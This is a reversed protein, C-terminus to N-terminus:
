NRRRAKQDESIGNREAILISNKGLWLYLYFVLCGHVISVVLVSTYYGFVSFLSLFLILKSILELLAIRNLPVTNVLSYAVGAPWRSVALFFMAIAAFLYPLHEDPSNNGVWISVICHGISGYILAAVGSAVIMFYLGYKYNKILGQHEGKADMAILFPAYSGPIRWLILIIVEPIRWILYYNAVVEPEALWGLLLTDAQITLLLIGYVVYDRGMKGSARSWLNQFGPIVKIWRLQYRGRRWYLWALVRVTLLGTIQAFIIGALGWDIYLGILVLIAFVLQGIIENQNNTGQKHCASFALRDANYEYMLLIYLSALLLAVLIESDELIHPMLWPMLLWFLLVALVAYGVYLFKSFAYASKLGENDDVAAYEAMIRAMSGSLWGVGIAVYNNVALIMVLVGFKDKGLHKIYLPVLVLQVIITVLMLGYGSILSNLYNRNIPILSSIATLKIAM